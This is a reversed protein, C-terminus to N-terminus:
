EENRLAKLLIGSRFYLEALSNMYDNEARVLDARARDLMTQTDLLDVLLALSNEYRRKVIRASEEAEAVMAQALEIRKRNEGARAYAERVRFRIESRLANRKEEAAHKMARAQSVRYYSPLDLINWKLYVGAMYSRGEDGFISRHDNLDYSAALSVEPLFSSRELSVADKAKSIGTELAALDKRSNSASIFFDLSKMKLAPRERGIEGIEDLGVVLSLSRRAVEHDSEASILAAEANKVSVKARLVDSSLATGARFRSEAMRLHARAEDLAKRATDIYRESTQVAIYSRFVKLAIEERLHELSKRAADLEKEAILKGLYLRPAFLPQELRISTHYDTVDDPDNLRSIIFDSQSFREQNLKAMFGYTPNDTLSIGEELRLRPFLNGTQGKAKEKRFSVEWGGARLVPNNALATDLAQRFTLVDSGAWGQFPIVEAMIFVTLILLVRKM